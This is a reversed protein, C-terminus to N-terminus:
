KKAEPKPLRGPTYKIEFQIPLLPLEEPAPRPDAPRLRFGDATKEYRLGAAGYLLEDAPSWSKDAVEALSDPLRGRRERHRNIRLAGRIMHANALHRHRLERLYTFAPLFSGWFSHSSFFANEAILRRAASDGAPGLDDSAALFDDYHRLVWIQDELRTTAFLPGRRLWALARLSWLPRGQALDTVFPSAAEELKMEDVLGFANARDGLMGQRFSFQPADRLFADIREFERESPDHRALIEALLRCSYHLSRTEHDRSSLLYDGDAIRSHRMRLLAWHFADHPRGAGLSRYLAGTCAATLASIPEYNGAMSGTPCEYPLHWLGVPAPPAALAKELEAFAPRIGAIVADHKPDADPKELKQLAGLEARPVPEGPPLWDGLHEKWEPSAGARVIEFRTEDLLVHARLLHVLRPARKDMRANVDEATVVGDRTRLDAILADREARLRERRLFFSALWVSTAVLLFLPITRRKRAFIWGFIARLRSM